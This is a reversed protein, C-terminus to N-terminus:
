SFNRESVKQKTRQRKGKLVGPNGILGKPLKRGLPKFYCSPIVGLWYEDYPVAKGLPPVYPYFEVIGSEFMAYRVGSSFRGILIFKKGSAAVLPMVKLSGECILFSAMRASNASVSECGHWFKGLHILWRTSQTILNVSKTIRVGWTQKLHRIIAEDDYYKAKM